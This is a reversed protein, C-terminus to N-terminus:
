QIEGQHFGDRVLQEYEALPRILPHEEQLAERQSDAQHRTLLERITRLRYEGQSLALACVRDLATATHFGALSLLGQLVRLGEAGRHQLVAQSWQTAGAGLLKVRNLLWEEGREVTAIKEPRIHEPQTSFRGPDQRPHLTVQELRDNLVRVLRSDWRVWVERSVYEPPVSYYAQHVQVYGDRQVKRRGEEFFPFREAPLPLLAGREVEVFLKGVQKHITGHVRTDAVTQEWQQLFLNQEQLSSFSRGKLANEQVYDIGREIKGKHRPTRPRTPLLAIGYYTAFSRVRPNVEPDFWDAKSVAAKLNDLILCKPVGGFAWFANELCRVFGETTQQLIVESYGKRSCSLVIRLVHPCRRKGDGVIAAGQGFDIQAEEGPACELRRFPLPTTQNQRAVFRRVSYYSGQYGHEDQLDQFIRQASLDLQLKALILDRYPECASDRGRSVVSSAPCLDEAPVEPVATSGHSAHAPKLPSPPQASGHPANAPKAEPGPQPSPQDATEAQAAQRLHRAVTARDIGLERAIRRQSWKRQHLTLITEILAMTLHNAM